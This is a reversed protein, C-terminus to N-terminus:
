GTRGRSSRAYRGEHRLVAAIGPAYLLAVLGLPLIGGRRVDFDAGVRDWTEVLVFRALGIEFCLILALWLVGVALQRPMSGAHLWPLALYAVAVAVGCGALISLQRAVVDGVLPEVALVRLANGIAVVVVLGFGVAIARWWM